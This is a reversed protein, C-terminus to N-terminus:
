LLVCFKKEKKEKKEKTPSKPKTKLKSDDGAASPQEQPDSKRQVVYKVADFFVEKLGKRTLASCEMYAVAQLEACLEEGKEKTIINLGQDLVKQTEAANDRLDVKTGVVM